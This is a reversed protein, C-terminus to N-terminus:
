ELDRFTPAFQSMFDESDSRSVMQVPRTTLPRSPLKNKTEARGM